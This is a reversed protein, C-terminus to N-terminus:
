TIGLPRKGKSKGVGDFGEGYEVHWAWGTRRSKMVQIINPSSYLDNFGANYLKIGL